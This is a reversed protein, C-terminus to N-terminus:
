AQSPASDSRSTQSTKVLAKNPVGWTPADHNAPNKRSRREKETKVANALDKLENASLKGLDIHV